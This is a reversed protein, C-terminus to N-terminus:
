TRAATFAPGISGGRSLVSVRGSSGVSKHSSPRIAPAPEDTIFAIDACLDQAREYGFSKAMRQLHRDPKALPLGINKALHFSTAPGIYPFQQLYEVGEESIKEMVKKIGFEKVHIAIALMAEVKAIHGFHCLANSRCAEGNEVIEQSCRWNFFVQSIM